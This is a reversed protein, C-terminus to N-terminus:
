INGAHNPYLKGCDWCQPITPDMEPEKNRQRLAIGGISTSNCRIFRTAEASTKMEIKFSKKSRMIYVERVDWGDDILHDRINNQSYTDLLTPDFGACFITRTAKLGLSMRPQFGARYLETEKEIAKNAEAENQFLVKISDRGPAYHRLFTIRHRDLVGRLDNEVRHNAETTNGSYRNRSRDFKFSLRYAM